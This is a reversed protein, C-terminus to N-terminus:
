STLAQTTVIPFERLTILKALDHLEFVNPTKSQAIIALLVCKTLFTSVASISKWTHYDDPPEREKMGNRGQPMPM